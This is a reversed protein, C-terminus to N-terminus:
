KMGDRSCTNTGRLSLIGPAKPAATSSVCRTRCRQLCGKRAGEPCGWRSACPSAAPRTGSRCSPSRCTCRRSGEARPARWGSCWGHRGCRRTSRAGARRRLHPQAPDAQLSGGLVAAGHQAASAFELWTSNKGQCKCLCLLPPQLPWGAAGPDGKGKSINSIAPHLCLMM